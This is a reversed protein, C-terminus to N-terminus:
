SNLFFPKIVQQYLLKCQERGSIQESFSITPVSTNLKYVISDDIARMQQLAEQSLLSLTFAHLQQLEVSDHATTIYYVM